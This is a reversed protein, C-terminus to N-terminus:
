FVDFNEAMLTRIEDNSGDDPFALHSKRVYCILDKTNGAPIPKVLPLTSYIEDSHDHTYYAQQKKFFAQRDKEDPWAEKALEADRASAKEIDEWSGYVTVAVLETNDPTMQHLYMSSGMIYENKKTVKDLYEKEVSKWTDMDFDEYDMNWHLMTVTIYRPTKQEENQASITTSSFLLLMVAVASFFRNTTKM